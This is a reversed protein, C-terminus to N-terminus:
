KVVKDIVKGAVQTGTSVVGSVIGTVKSVRGKVANSANDIKEKAGAAANTSGDIIANAKKITDTLNSVMVILFVYLMMRAASVIFKSVGVDIGTHGLFKDLVKLLFAILRRGVAFIILAAIINFALEQLAPLLSKLFNELAGPTLDTVDLTTVDTDDVFGAILGARDIMWNM